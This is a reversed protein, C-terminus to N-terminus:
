GGGGNVIKTLLIGSRVFDSSRSCWALNILVNFIDASSKLTRTMTDVAVDELNRDQLDTLKVRSAGQHLLKIDDLIINLSRSSQSAMKELYRADPLNYAKSASIM